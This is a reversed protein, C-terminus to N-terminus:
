PQEKAGVYGIACGLCNADIAEAKIRMRQTGTGGTTDFSLCDLKCCESPNGPGTIWQHVVTEVPTGTADNVRCITWLADVTTSSSYEVMTYNEDANIDVEAIIVSDPTGTTETLDVAGRAFYCTGAAATSVPLTGDPNLQPLVANGASDLFSPFQAKNLTAM